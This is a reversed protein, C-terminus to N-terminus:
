YTANFVTVTKRGDASFYSEGENVIKPLPQNLEYTENLKEIIAISIRTANQTRTPKSKKNLTVIIEKAALLLTLRKSSDVQDQLSIQRTHFSKGGHTNGQSQANSFHDTQSKIKQIISDIDYEFLVESSHPLIVGNKGTNVATYPLIELSNNFM